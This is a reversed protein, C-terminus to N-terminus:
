AARWRRLENRLWNWARRTLSTRPACRATPRPKIRRLEEVTCGKWRALEEQHQRAVARYWACYEAFAQRRDVEYTLERRLQFRAIEEDEARQPAQPIIRNLGEPSLSM